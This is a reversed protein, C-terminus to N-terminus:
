EGFVNKLVDEPGCVTPASGSMGLHNSSYVRLVSSCSLIMVMQCSSLHPEATWVLSISSESSM